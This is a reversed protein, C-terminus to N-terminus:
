DALLWLAAAACFLITAISMFREDGTWVRGILAATAGILFVLALLRQALNTCGSTDLKALFRPPHERETDM